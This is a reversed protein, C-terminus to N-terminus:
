SLVSSIFRKVLEPDNDLLTVYQKEALLKEIESKGPLEFDDGLAEKIVGEFKIPLATELIVIPEGEEDQFDQAVKIGDATHPDM